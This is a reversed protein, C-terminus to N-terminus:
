PPHFILNKSLIMFTQFFIDITEKIINTPIDIYQYAKSTELKSIEM